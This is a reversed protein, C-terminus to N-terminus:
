FVHGSLASEPGPGEVARSSHLGSWDVWGVLALSVVKLQWGETKKRRQGTDSDGLAKSVTLTM